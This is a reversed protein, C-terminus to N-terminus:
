RDKEIPSQEKQKESQEKDFGQLRRVFERAQKDCLDAASGDIDSVVRLRALYARAYMENVDIM